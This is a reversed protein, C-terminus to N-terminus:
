GQKIGHHLLDSTKKMWYPHYTAKGLVFVSKVGTAAINPFVKTECWISFFDWNMETHHDASKNSKSGRFLLMCGNVLGSDPSGIHSLISRKGRGSPVHLVDKTANERIDKWAKSCTMNKFVWTEDQYYTRRGEQRYIEIWDM